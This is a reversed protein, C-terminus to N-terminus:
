NHLDCFFTLENPPTYVDPSYKPYNPSKQGYKQGLVLHKADCINGKPLCNQNKSGEDERYIKIGRLFSMSTDLGMNWSLAFFVAVNPKLFFIMVDGFWKYWWM